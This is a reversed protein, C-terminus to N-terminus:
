QGGNNVAEVVSKAVVYHECCQAATICVALAAEDSYSSLEVGCPLKQTRPSLRWVNKACGMSMDSGPTLDSYHPSGPDFTFHKCFWCLRPTTSQPDGSADNHESAKM